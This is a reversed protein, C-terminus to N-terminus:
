STNHLIEEVMAFCFLDQFEGRMYQHPIKLDFEKLRYMSFTMMTTLATENNKVTSADYCNKPSLTLNSYDCEIECIENCEVNHCTKVDYCRFHSQGRKKCAGRCAGCAGSKALNM